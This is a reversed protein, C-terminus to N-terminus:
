GRAGFIILVVWLSSLIDNTPELPRGLVLAYNALGPVPVAVIRYEEGSTSVGSRVSNGLQTRAIALEQDGLVLREREDPVFYREGDARVAALSVNEARLSAETLGGLARIDATVPGKALSTATNILENDLANYLSVRITVYAAVSSIAVALAVAVTTLYAVRRQLPLSRLASRLGSPM